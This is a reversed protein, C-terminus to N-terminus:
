VQEFIEHFNSFCKNGSVLDCFYLAVLTRIHDTGSDFKENVENFFQVRIDYVDSSNQCM